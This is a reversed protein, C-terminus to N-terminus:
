MLTKDFLVKTIGDYSIGDKLPLILDSLFLMHM